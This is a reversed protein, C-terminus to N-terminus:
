SVAVCQRRSNLVLAHVGGDVGGYAVESKVELYAKDCLCYVVSRTYIHSTVQGFEQGKSL